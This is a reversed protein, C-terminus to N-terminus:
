QAANVIIPLGQHCLLSVTHPFTKEEGKGREGKGKVREGEKEHNIIFALTFVQIKLM